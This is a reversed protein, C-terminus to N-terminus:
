KEIEVWKGHGEWLKISNLSLDNSLNDWIWSAINEATPNPLVENLDRHDLKELVKEKIINKLEEFDLVMGDDKVEDTIVVELRYTHGHVRECAGKYNALHHSSDFHFTRGIKM